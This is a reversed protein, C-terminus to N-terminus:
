TRWGMRKAFVYGAETAAAIILGTVIEISIVVDPDHLIFDADNDNLWGHLVLAGVIYRLAIRIFPGM